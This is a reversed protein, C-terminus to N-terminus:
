AINVARHFQQIVARMDDPLKRLVTAALDEPVSWAAEAISGAIAAQTDADGGLSIANRVADEVSDAELFARIAQPVSGQCTVDFSYRPRIRALPEDLRYGSEATVRQQISEQSAGQRALYVALATARAGRIGEPHNHTCAASREAQALVTAEDDFWWGIPSVRMASGNGFSNYPEPDAAMFWQAFRIGYGRAPFRRAWRRLASAYSENQLLADAIAVTLVTDDTFACEHHFLVFEKEKIPWHEYVSGIVDGAIAGLM